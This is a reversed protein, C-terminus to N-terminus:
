AIAFPPPRSFFYSHTCQITGIISQFSSLTEEKFNQLHKTHAVQVLAPFYQHSAPVPSTTPQKNTSFAASSESNLKKFTIAPKAEPEPLQENVETIQLPTESETLVTKAASTQHFLTQKPIYIANEKDSIFADNVTIIVSAQSSTEDLSDAKNGIFVVADASSTIVADNSVFFLADDNVTGEEANGAYITTHSYSAQAYFLVLLAFVQVM